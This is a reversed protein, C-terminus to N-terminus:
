NLEMKKIKLWPLILQHIININSLQGIEQDLYKELDTNKVIKGLNKKEMM